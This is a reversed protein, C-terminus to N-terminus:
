HMSINEKYSDKWHVLQAQMDQLAVASIIDPLVCRMKDYGSENEASRGLLIRHETEGNPRKIPAYYTSKGDRAEALVCNYDADFYQGMNNMFKNFSLPDTAIYDLIKNNESKGFYRLTTAAKDSIGLQESLFKNEPKTFDSIGLLYDTSLGFLKSIDTLAMIDIQTAGLEWHRVTREVVGLKDALAKQSLGLAKRATRIRTGIKKLDM